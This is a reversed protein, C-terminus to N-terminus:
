AMNKGALLGVVGLKGMQSICSGRTRPLVKDLRCGAAVRTGHHETGWRGAAVIHGRDGRGTSKASTCCCTNTHLVMMADRKTRLGPRASGRTPCERHVALSSGPRGRIVLRARERSGDRRREKECSIGGCKLLRTAPRLSDCGSPFRTSFPWRVPWSVLVTNTQGRSSMVSHFPRSRLYERYPRHPPRMGQVPRGVAHHGLPSPFAGLRGSHKWQM